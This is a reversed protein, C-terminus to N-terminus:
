RHKAKAKFYARSFSNLSYDFYNNDPFNRYMEYGLWAVMTANDTCYRNEPLYLPIELSACQSTFRERLLTNRSVGGAVILSRVDWREMLQLTKFVLYDVVSSLFSSLLDPLAASGSEISEKEAFRLVATKYGSFSFDDSGDSMRPVTFSFRNPDGEGFRRDLIPGGPYGLGFYNVVKDMVEGAADDRTKALLKTDFKSQQYFISTHGGSVVLAMLPYSIDTRNIFSSEIHSFIHDVGVLPIRRSYSLGKTFALGVLLSGILGPGQTLALLDVGDLDVKAKKLLRELLYDIAELHNRAAVEPVIGGFRRHLPIQSKIEEHLVRNVSGRKIM